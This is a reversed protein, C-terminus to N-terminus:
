RHRQWKSTVIRETRESSSDDPDNDTRDFSLDTLVMCIIFRFSKIRQQILFKPLVCLASVAITEINNRFPLFFLRTDQKNCVHQVTCSQIPSRAM